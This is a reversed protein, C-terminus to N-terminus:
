HGSGAAQNVERAPHNGARIFAPENYYKLPQLLLMKRFLHASFM